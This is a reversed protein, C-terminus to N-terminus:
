WTNFRGIPASAFAVAGPHDLRPAAGGEGVSLVCRDTLFLTSRRIHLLKQVPDCYQDPWFFNILITDM